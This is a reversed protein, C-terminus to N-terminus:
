QKNKVNAKRASKEDMIMRRCELCLQWFEIDESITKQNDFDTAERNLRAALFKLLKM